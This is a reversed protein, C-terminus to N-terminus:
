NTSPPIFVRHELLYVGSSAAAMVIQQPGTDDGGTLALSADNPKATPAFLAM